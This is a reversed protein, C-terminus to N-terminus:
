VRGHITAFVDIAVRGYKSSYREGVVIRVRFLRGQSENEDYCWLPLFLWARDLNHSESIADSIRYIKRMPELHVHSM